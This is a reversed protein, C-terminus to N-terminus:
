LQKTTNSLDKKVQKEIKKIFDLPKNLIYSIYDEKIYKTTKNNYKIAAKLRKKSKESKYLFVDYDTDSFAKAFKDLSIEFNYDPLRKRLINVGNESIDLSKFNPQTELQM